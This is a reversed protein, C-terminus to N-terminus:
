YLVSYCFECSKGREVLYSEILLSIRDDNLLLLVCKVCPGSTDRTGIAINHSKFWSSIGAWIGLLSVYILTVLLM